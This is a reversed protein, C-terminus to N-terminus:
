HKETGASQQSNAPVLVVRLGLPAGGTRYAVIAEGAWDMFLGAGRWSYGPASWMIRSGSAASTPEMRNLEVVGGVMDKVGYPSTDIPVVGVEREAQPGVARAKMIHKPSNGWVYLRGDTGRAAKEWQDETPLAAILGCPGVLKALEKCFRAAKELSVSNHGRGYGYPLVDVDLRIEPFEESLWKWSSRSELGMAVVQGITVETRSIWYGELYVRRVERRYGVKKLAPHRAPLGTGAVFWGPPIWVFDIGAFVANKTSPRPMKSLAEDLDPAERYQQVMEELTAYAERWTRDDDEEALHKRMFSVLSPIATPGLRCLSKRTAARAAEGDSRLGELLAGVDPEASWAAVALAMSAVLGICVHLRRLPHHTHVEKRRIM